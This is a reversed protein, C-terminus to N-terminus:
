RKGKRGTTGGGGKGFFDSDLSLVGPGLLLITLAIVFYCAAPEMAGPNPVFLPSHNKHLVFVAVAMTCMLGLCAVPTLLGVLLAAGGFFESCAALAQFAGPVGSPGNHDM